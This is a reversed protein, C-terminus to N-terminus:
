SQEHLYLYLTNYLRVADPGFAVANMNGRRNGVISWAIDDGHIDVLGMYEAVAPRNADAYGGTRAPSTAPVAASRGPRDGPATGAGPDGNAASTHATHANGGSASHTNCNTAGDQRPHANGNSDSGTDARSRGTPQTPVSDVGRPRRSAPGGAHAHRDAIGM